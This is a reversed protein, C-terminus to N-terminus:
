SYVYTINLALWSNNIFRGCISERARQVNEIFLM